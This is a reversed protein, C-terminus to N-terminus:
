SRYRVGLAVDFDSTVSMLSSTYENKPVEREDGGRRYRGTFSRELLIWSFLPYSYEITLLDNSRDTNEIKKGILKRVWFAFTLKLRTYLM